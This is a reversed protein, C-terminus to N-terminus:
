AAPQRRYAGKDHETSTSNRGDINEFETEDKTIVKIDPRKVLCLSKLGHKMLLVNVSEWEAEEQQKELMLKNSLLSSEYTRPAAPSMTEKTSDFSTSVPLLFIQTAETM